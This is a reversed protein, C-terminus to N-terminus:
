LPKIFYTMSETQALWSIWENNNRASRCQYNEHFFNECWECRNINTWTWCSYIYCFIQCIFSRRFRSYAIEFQIQNVTSNMRNNFNLAIKLRYTERKSILAYQVSEKWKFIKKEWPLGLLIYESFFIQSKIVFGIKLKFLNRATSVWFKKIM